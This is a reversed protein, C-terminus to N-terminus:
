RSFSPQATMAAQLSHIQGVAALNDPNNANADYNDISFAFPVSM